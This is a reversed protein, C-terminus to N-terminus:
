NRSQSPSITEDADHEMEKAEKLTDESLNRYAESTVLSTSRHSLEDFSRSRRWLRRAIRRKGERMHEFLEQQRAM